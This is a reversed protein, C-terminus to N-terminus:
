VNTDDKKRRVPKPKMFRPHHEDYMLCLGDRDALELRDRLAEGISRKGLGFWTKETSPFGVPTYEADYRFLGCDNMMVFMVERGIPDSLVRKWFLTYNDEAIERKKRIRAQQKPDDASATEEIPEEEPVDDDAM